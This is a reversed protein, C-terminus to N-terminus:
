GEDREYWHRAPMSTVKGAVSDGPVPGRERPSLAQKAESLNRKRPTEPADTLEIRLWPVGGGSPSIGSGQDRVGEADDSVIRFFVDEAPCAYKCEATVKRVWERRPATEDVVTLGLGWETWGHIAGAGRADRFINTSQAKSIHHLVLVGCQCEVQIRKTAALVTNAIATNDNEDQTHMERLVDFIVLDFQEMKLEQILGELHEPNDLHLVASQTMTNVWIQGWNYASRAASGESFLRLRRATEQPSDERSIIAVRRRLPVVHGLFSSGSALALALDLSLPSKGVKPDAVMLGRTRAPILGEVLWEIEVPARDLFDRMEELLVHETQEPEWIPTAKVLALLAKVTNAAIALWDSVDDKEKLGPLEAAKVKEAYPKVNACVTQQHSRGKADNDALVVVLKGTFYPAYEAKWHGAGDFNCTTACHKVDAALLAERLNDADKEGEVVFVLKATVLEPLRYLVKKVGHLNYFWGGKGDPQRNAFEKPEYRLKQFLVKGSVDTYDYSAIVRRTQKPKELGTIRYIQEWAAEQDCAMMRKEFDLMGGALECVHCHWVGKALNLSMSAHKDGHFPCHVNQADQKTLRELPLRYAFYRYCADFGPNFSSESM